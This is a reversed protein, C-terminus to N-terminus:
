MNKFIFYNDNNWLFESHLIKSIKNILKKQDLVGELKEDFKERTILSDLEISIDDILSLKKLKFQDYLYNFINEKMLDIDEKSFIFVKNTTNWGEVKFLHKQSDIVSIDSLNTDFRDALIKEMKIDAKDIGTFIFEDLKNENISEYIKYSEFKLIKDKEMSVRDSIVDKLIKDAGKIEYLNNRKLFNNFRKSNPKLYKKLRSPRINWKEIYEDILENIVNYYKNLEERNTISM